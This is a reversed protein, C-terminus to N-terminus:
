IYLIRGPYSLSLRLASFPNPTTAQVKGLLIFLANERDGRAAESLIKLMGVGSCIMKQSVHGRPAGWACRGHKIIYPGWFAAKLAECEV